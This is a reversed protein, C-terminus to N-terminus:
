QKCKLISATITHELKNYIEINTAHAERAHQVWMIDLYDVRYADDPRGYVLKNRNKAIWYGFEFNTTLAILERTRPVWFLICDARRLGANEWLPLDYRGKDSETLSTFEPIIITGNFKHEKFIREAEFRWSPQLHPQHGRVTPGALFIVDGTLKGIEDQPTEYRISKM